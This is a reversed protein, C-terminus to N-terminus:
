FSVFTLVLVVFAVALGLLETVSIGAVSSSFVQGGVAMQSGPPLSKELSSGAAQLAASTSPLVQTTPVSLQIPGLVASADASVNGTSPGSYPSSAATVQPIAALETVTHEVASQFGAEEVSGGKPAVAVLQASAGSVEPFTRALADLANQSETGPITFTNDTGHSLLGASVVFLALLILWGAVVARRARYAFRGLRYLLSSMASLTPGDGGPRCHGPDASIKWVIPDLAVTTRTAGCRKMWRSSELTGAITIMPAWHPSSPLPLAVSTRPLRM